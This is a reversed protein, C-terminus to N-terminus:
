DLFFWRRKVVCFRLDLGFKNKRRTYDVEQRGFLLGEEFSRLLLGFAEYTEFLVM